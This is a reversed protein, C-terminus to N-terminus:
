KINHQNLFSNINNSIEHHYEELAFHSTNYLHLEAQPLDTLFARAAAEPFFPDNKGWVLLTKPEYSRFYNQWVPYEAVNASYNHLLDLHIDVLGPKLLNQLDSLYADPSILEPNEAGTFYFVKIGDLTMLFRIPKETEENRNQLFPMAAGFGEGIGEMYANANQIILSQISGPRKAALRFGIPGGYDFAYLNFTKLGIQDIFHEVTTTLNEFTYQYDAPSPADSNGFGPYDPAILHYDNKLDEILNRFSISSSPFGGLLLIAPKSQDGAERYFINIGAINITKYSVKLNNM